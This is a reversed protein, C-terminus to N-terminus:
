VPIYSLFKYSRVKLTDLLLFFEAFYVQGLKYVTPAIPNDDPAHV